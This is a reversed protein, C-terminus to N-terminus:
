SFRNVFNKLIIQPVIVDEKLASAILIKADEPPFYGANKYINIRLALGTSDLEPHFQTAYINQKYRIMQVPCMKSRALLVAGDPVNECSEKHGVFGRFSKPLGTTLPDTEAEKTLMIDVAGVAEHYKNQSVTGGLYASLLGIGYCAGLFPFDRKVADDLLKYLEKEFRIQADTKKDKEDSVNSPGGGVIIGAYQDLNISPLNEREIRFRRSNQIEIGGFKLFAEYENDAAQDEPRLQLILFPKIM